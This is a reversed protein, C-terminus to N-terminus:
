WLKNVAAGGGMGVADIVADLSKDLCDDESALVAGMAGVELDCALDSTAM